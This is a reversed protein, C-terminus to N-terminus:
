RITQGYAPLQGGFATADRVAMYAGRVDPAATVGPGPKTVEGAGLKWAEAM